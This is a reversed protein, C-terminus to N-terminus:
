CIKRPMRSRLDSQLSAQFLMTLLRFGFAPMFHLSKGVEIFLSLASTINAIHEGLDSSLDHLYRQVAPNKFNGPAVVTM